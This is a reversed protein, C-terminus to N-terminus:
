PKTKPDNPDEIVGPQLSGVVLVNSKNIKPKVTSVRALRSSVM